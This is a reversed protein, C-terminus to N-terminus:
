PTLATLEEAISFALGSYSFQVLSFLTFYNLTADVDQVNPPPAFSLLAWRGRSIGLRDYNGDLNGM